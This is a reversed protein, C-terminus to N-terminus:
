CHANIAEWKIEWAVEFRKQQTADPYKEQDVDSYFEDTDRIFVQNDEPDLNVYVVKHEPTCLINTHDTAHHLLAYQCGKFHNFIKGRKLMHELQNKTFYM